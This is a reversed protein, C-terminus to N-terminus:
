QAQDVIQSFGFYEALVECCPADPVDFTQLTDLVEFRLHRVGAFSELNHNFAFSSDRSLMREDALDRV